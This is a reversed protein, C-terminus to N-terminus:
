PLAFRQLTAWAREASGYAIGGGETTCLTVEVGDMCQAYTSCGDSDPASPSGVCGDLEAWRQFTGQAGLLHITVSANNPAQVGGGDYPVVADATGRFSLVTLPRSPQCPQEAADLLDFASPAIAAFVDAANCGLHYALGGGIALGVAYVRRTDICAQEALREVLARAFAVDDVDPTNTCCPGVNWSADIGQPWAVVIGAQDSLERYGSSAEAMAPSGGLTHFDLVLPSPGSGSGAAPVHVTYSRTVTGVTVSRESDGTPLTPTCAPATPDGEPVRCFGDQCRFGSGLPACEPDGVCRLDCEAPGASSCASGSPRESQAVCAAGVALATCDHDLSCARTCTGCVCALGNGCGTDCHGLFNTESGARPAAADHCAALVYSGCLALLWAMALRRARSMM